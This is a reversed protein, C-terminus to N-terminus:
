RAEAAAALHWGVLPLTLCAMETVVYFRCTCLRQTVCQSVDWANVFAAGVLLTVTVPIRAGCEWQSRDNVSDM